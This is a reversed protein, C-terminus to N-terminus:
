SELEVQDTTQTASVFALAFTKNISRRHFKKMGIPMYHQM